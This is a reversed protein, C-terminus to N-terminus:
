KKREENINAGCQTCYKNKIPNRTKCKPCLVFSFNDGRSDVHILTNIKIEPNNVLNRALGELDGQKANELSEMGFINIFKSDVGLKEINDQITVKINKNYDKFCEVVLGWSKEWPTETVILIEGSVINELNLMTDMMIIMRRVGNFFSKGDGPPYKANIESMPNIRIGIDGDPKKYYYTGPAFHEGDKSFMLGGKYAGEKYNLELKAYSVDEDYNKWGMKERINNLIVKETYDKLNLIDLSKRLVENLDTPEEFFAMRLGRQMNEQLEENITTREKM